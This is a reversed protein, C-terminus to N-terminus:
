DLSTDGVTKSSGVAVKALLDGDDVYGLAAKLATLNGALVAGAQTVVSAVYSYVEAPTISNPAKVVMKFLAFGTALDEDALHGAFTLSGVELTSSVRDQALVDELPPISDLLAIAAARYATAVEVMEDFASGDDVGANAVQTCSLVIEIDMASM